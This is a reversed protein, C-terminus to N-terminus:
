ISEKTSQCHTSIFMNTLRTTESHWIVTPKVRYGAVNDEFL